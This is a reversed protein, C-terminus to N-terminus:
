FLYYTGNEKYAENWAEALTKAEKFTVCNNISTIEESTATYREFFGYLNNCRHVRQAFAYFKDEKNKLTIVYYAYGDLM